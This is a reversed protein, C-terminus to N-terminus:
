GQLASSGVVNVESRQHKQGMKVILTGPRILGPLPLHVYGFALKSILELGSVVARHRVWSM